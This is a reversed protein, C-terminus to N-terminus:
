DTPRVVWDRRVEAGSGQELKRKVYALPGALRENLRWPPNIVLLGSGNLRERDRDTRLMLELRLCPQQLGSRVLQSAFKDTSRRDKIPYWLLMQGVAWRKQAALLAEAAKTFEGEQEYAPDILALGRRPTPPLLANIAEWGDRRHIGIRADRGMSRRLAKYEDPHMEVLSMRDHERLATRMLWPSGPYYRLGSGGSALDPNIQKLAAWYSPLEKPMAPDAVLAGVGFRYEGGRQSEDSALDYRGSGAHTDLLHFPNPKQRLQDLMQLLVLHKLVDAHNGAHFAHRYNMGALM